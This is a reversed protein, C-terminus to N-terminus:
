WSRAWSWRTTATSRPMSSTAASAPSPSSRRSSSRAPSCRRRPRAPMPSSRCSRAACRMSAGRRHLEVPRARPRHPHPALAAGRDDLRADAARRDAIQPLALTLVPGIKNAIGGGGWGAVPVLSLTLAFVLQYLPAIVFTPVTSGATATRSSPTTPRATRTSRPLSASRRRRPSARPDAGVRRAPDIGAPRGAFLDAVTFDPLNYSPGFDGHALDGLYSLYQKWLPEDLHYVRELNAKVTPNLGREQNFPGGPAVRM